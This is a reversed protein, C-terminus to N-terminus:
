LQFQISFMLSSLFNSTTAFRSSWPYWNCPGDQQKEGLRSKIIFSCTIEGESQKKWEPLVICLITETCNYNPFSIRHVISKWSNVKNRRKMLSIVATSTKSLMSNIKKMTALIPSCKWKHQPQASLKPVNRNNNILAQVPDLGRWSRVGGVLSPNPPACPTPFPWLWSLQGWSVVPISWLM